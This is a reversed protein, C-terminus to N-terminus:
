SGSGIFIELGPSALIGAFNQGPSLVLLQMFLSKGVYSVDPMWEFVIKGSGLQRTLKSDHYGSPIYVLQDMNVLLQCGSAGFLTFDFVGSAPQWSSVLVAADTPFPPMARTTWEVRVPRGAVPEENPTWVM